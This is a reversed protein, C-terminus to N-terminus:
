SGIAIWNVVAPTTSAADGSSWVSFTIVNGAFTASVTDSAASDAQGLTAVVSTIAVFGPLTMTGAGTVSVQGGATKPLVVGGLEIFKAFIRGVHEKASTQM